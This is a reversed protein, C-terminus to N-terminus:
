PKELIWTHIHFNSWLSPQAGFLQYKLVTTSSFVRSLGTSLSSILGSLGLPFWGQTNMPLVQASASSGISQSHSAFFWSMPFSVSTPFSQPCCSFPSVSSSIVMLSEVSMLKCLSLSVFFSLSAQHAASWIGCLTLCKAVSYCLNVYACM